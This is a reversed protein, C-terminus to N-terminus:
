LKMFQQIVKLGVEGSKEPHFQCGYINEHRIVASIAQGNYYTDALRKAPNKPVAMYSHVFYVSSAQSLDNLISDTWSGGHETPYLENWGIHPIKHPEGNVGQAPISTVEGEILNLGSHAGFENSTSLLMQMGLCIGLFPKGQSVFGGIPQIFDLERLGKMGDAFAGVGPLILRDASCIDEPTKAFHVKIDFHSFARAVSLLNGVGYDIISVSSM